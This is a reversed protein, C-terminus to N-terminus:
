GVKVGSVGLVAARGRVRVREHGEQGPDLLRGIGHDVDGGATAVAHAQLFAERGGSRALGSIVERLM